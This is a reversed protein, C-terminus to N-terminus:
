MSGFFNSLIKVSLVGWASSRFSVLAESGEAALNLLFGIVRSYVDSFGLETCGDFLAFCRLELAQHM